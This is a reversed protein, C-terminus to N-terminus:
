LGVKTIKFNFKELIKFIIYGLIGGTINLIVDDIDVSRGIFFQVFEIFLSTVLSILFVKGFSRYKKYIASILLTLPMFILINGFINIFTHFHGSYKLYSRMTRFPYINIGWAGSHIRDKFNGVFDFNESTLDIGHNAIFVNPMFMFVCLVAIYGVLLSLLFERKGSSGIKYEKFFNTRILSFSVFAVAFAIIGRKLFFMLLNM